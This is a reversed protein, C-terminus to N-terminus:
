VVSKRDRGTETTITQGNVIVRTAAGVTVSNPPASADDVKFFNLKVQSNPQTEIADGLYINDGVTLSVPLGNRIVLVSGSAQAVKAIPVDLPITTADSTSSADTATNTAAQAVKFAGEGVDNLALRLQAMVEAPLSTDTFEGADNFFGEIREMDGNPKVRLLDRGLQLVHDGADLWEQIPHSVRSAGAPVKSFLGVFFDKVSTKTNM